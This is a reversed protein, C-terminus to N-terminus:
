PAHSPTQPRARQSEITDIVSGLVQQTAADATASANYRDYQRLIEVRTLLLGHQRVNQEFAKAAARRTAIPTTELSVLNVLSRQSKQTGLEALVAFSAASSEPRLAATAIAGAQPNLDYFKPGDALLQGLWTIAQTSRALREDPSAENHGALAVLQEAMAAVRQDSHPRAFALVRDHEDALRQAAELRGEGALLGVPLHGTAPDIRLAYLVDRIGPVQIDMDVLVFRVDPSQQALEVAEAGRNTAAADIGAGHLLGAVNAARVTTPMAVVAQDRGIGRAFYGLTEPVRSSGPFPMEPHLKLIAGLAAFRM